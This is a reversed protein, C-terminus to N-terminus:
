QKKADIFHKIRNAISQLDSQLAILAGEKAEVLAKVRDADGYYVRSVPESKVSMCSAVAVFRGSSPINVSYSSEETIQMLVDEECLQRLKM